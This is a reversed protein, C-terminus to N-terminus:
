PTEQYIDWPENAQTLWAANKRIEQIDESEGIGTNEESEETQRRSIINRAIRQIQNDEKFQYFRYPNHQTFRPWLSTDVADLAKKANEVYELYDVKVLLTMYWDTGFLIRDKLKVRTDATEDKRILDLFYERFEPYGFSSSIDAYLNRYKQIMEMIDAAWKKGTPKRGGFHALCLYLNHLSQGNVEQKLVEEWAKPSVFCEEFYTQKIIAKNDPIHGYTAQLQIIAPEPKLADRITDKQRQDEPGDNPHTFDYFDGADFTSAGEPTCHNLIPTGRKACEAYFDALIPLRPEWPRFGQATYMKYGLYLGKEGVQEYVEQNGNLALQWRRPDYHFMPLLQLPNALMAQETRQVQKDWTEYHDTESSYMKFPVADISVQRLKGDRDCYGGTIGEERVTKRYREYDDKTQGNEPLLSRQEEIRQYAGDRNRFFNRFFGHLPTWYFLPKQTFDEDAFVPNYIKLGFYGDVHAYEMDMTMVICPTMFHPLNRYQPQQSLFDTAPPQRKDIFEKALNFTDLPSVDLAETIGIRRTYRGQANPEAQLIYKRTAGVTASTVLNGFGGGYKGAGEVVARSPQLLTFSPVQGWLFPLPACNGSNIHMHADVVVTPRYVSIVHIGGCLLDDKVSEIVPGNPDNQEVKSKKPDTTNDTM